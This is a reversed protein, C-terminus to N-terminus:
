TVAWWFTSGYITRDDFTNWTLATWMDQRPNGGFKVEDAIATYVGSSIYTPRQHPLAALKAAHNAARGVWVLDNAGRAGTKAVLLKSTDIGVVHNLVFNSNTYFAKLQAQVVNKVIWNIQLAAKVARTNKREGIFVAMVRDGDYATIEGNHSKIVRVASYLFAKYVEAAFRAPYDDVMVTSDALDAYLVTADIFVGDNLMTVSADSPVVTGNRETWQSTFIDHCYQELDTKLTM